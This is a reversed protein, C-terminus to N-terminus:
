FLGFINKLRSNSIQNECLRGGRPSQSIFVDYDARRSTRSQPMGFTLCFLNESGVTFMRQNECLRGGRPSQSIFVDYDNLAM